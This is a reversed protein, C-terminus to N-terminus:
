SPYKSVLMVLILCLTSLVLYIIYTSLSRLISKVTHEERFFSTFVWIAYGISMLVQLWALMDSSWLLHILTSFSYFVAQQGTIYSNIVLHEAYNSGLRRFSLYSALSFVPLLLLTSYAFNNAFWSLFPPVQKQGADQFTQSTFGSFFSDLWTPQGVIKTTLFYITSMSLVYTIPKFYKKRKGNLYEEISIGPRLFLEKLTFFFGKDIQFVNNVIDKLLGSLTIKGVNSNQGCHSCYTGKVLQGCNKCDM